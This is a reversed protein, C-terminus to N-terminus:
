YKSAIKSDDCYTLPLTHYIHMISLVEYVTIESYIKPELEKM